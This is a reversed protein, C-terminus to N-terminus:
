QKPKLEKMRAKLQAKCEKSNLGGTDAHQAVVADVEARARTMIDGKAEDGAAEELGFYKAIIRVCKSHMDDAPPTPAVEAAVAPEAAVAAAAAAAAAPVQAPEQTGMPQTDQTGMPQTDMPQTGTPEAADGSAAEPAATVEATVQPAAPAADADADPMTEDADAPAAPAVAPAAAAAAAEALKAVAAGEDEVEAADAPEALSPQSPAQAPAARVITLWKDKIVACAEAVKALLPHNSKALKAIFKPKCERVDAASVVAAALRGVRAAVAEALKAEESVAAELAQRATERKKLANKVSADAKALAEAKAKADEAAADFRAKDEMVGARVAMLEPLDTPADAAESLAPVEPAPAAEPAKWDDEAAMYVVKEKRPAPAKRAKKEKPGAEGGEGGEEDGDQATRKHGRKPKAGTLAEAEEADAAAEAAAVDEASARDPAGRRRGKSARLVELEPDGAEAEAQEAEAEAEAATKAKPKKPAKIKVKKPAAEEGEAGAAAEPVDDEVPLAWKEGAAKAAEFKEVAEALAERWSDFKVGKKDKYKDVLEDKAKVFPVVKDPKYKGYLWADGEDYGVHKVLLTGKAVKFGPHKSADVVLSPHDPYNTFKVFVLEGPVPAFKKARKGKGKAQRTACIM